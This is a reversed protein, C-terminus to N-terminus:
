KYLNFVKTTYSRKKKLSKMIDYEITDECMLHYYNCEKTQGPRRIRGKCQHYVIYGEPLTYFIVNNTCTLDLGANGSKNQMILFDVQQDKFREILEDSKRVSGDVVVYSRNLSECVSIVNKVDSKFETYIIANPLTTLLEKLKDNKTNSLYCTGRKIGNEVRVFGSCIERLKLKLKAKSDAVVYANINEFEYFKEKILINYLESPQECQIEHIVEPCNSLDIADDTELGWSISQIMETLEHSMNRKESKPKYFDDMNFYRNLFRTKVPMFHDYLLYLQGIIDHRQKDQPTGTFLYVDRCRESIKKLTKSINSSVNKAKHSEDLILTDFYQDAYKHVQDYNIVIHNNNPIYKDLEKRYQGIVKKPTVILAKNINLTMLYSIAILTKGTGTGLFFGYRPYKLMRSVAELQHPKLPKNIPDPQVVYYEYCYRTPAQIFNKISDLATQTITCEGSKILPLIDRKFAERTSNNLIFYADTDPESVWEYYDIPDKIYYINNRSYIHM